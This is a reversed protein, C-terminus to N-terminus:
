NKIVIKMSKLSDGSALRLYYVGSSLPQNIDIQQQLNGSPLNKLTQAYVTKGLSDTLYIQLQDIATKLTGQLQFQHRVPNPFVQLNNIAFAEDNTNTVNGSEAVYIQQNSFAGEIVQQNGSPWEIVISDAKAADALGFHQTLSNQGCYGSQSTVERMQWVPEGGITARVRVKAGIASRNSTSGELRVKLWNNHNTLNEFLFNKPTTANRNNKCNAFALDLFGDNNFDGFATGFSCPTLFDSPLDEVPSFHGQGDNLYLFNRIAGACFGNAVVLDLDGDNDVDGFASGFSCGGNESLAEATIDQFIGNGENRFLQNEDPTPSGSNTIFVDLDGDNDIDGWSAGMSSRRSTTLAGSSTSSLQSGNDNRFLKNVQMNENTAFLDLDGDGDFDVWNAGRTLEIGSVAAGSTIREFQGNQLNRYLMNERDGSSNTIYLDVFGDGDYDGWAATESYTRINASVNEPEYTFTGDGNNRYFSNIEGYWTVVFADLDGDNDVDAFTAGDSAGDDQVIDDDTIREFNGTGDNIYLENDQGGELGNSVFLDDVGDGNVDIWNISRSDTSVTVAQSGSVKKFLGEAPAIQATALEAFFFLVFLLRTIKKMAEYKRVFWAMGMQKQLYLTGIVAQVTSSNPKSM